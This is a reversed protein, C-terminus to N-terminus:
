RRKLRHSALRRVPLALGADPLSELIASHPDGRIISLLRYQQFKGVTRIIELAGRLPIEPGTRAPAHARTM